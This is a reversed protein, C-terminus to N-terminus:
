WVACETGRVVGCVTHREGPKLQLKTGNKETLDKLCYSLLDLTFVASHLPGWASDMLRAERKKPEKLKRQMYQRLAAPTFPRVGRPATM